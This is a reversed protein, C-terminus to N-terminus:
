SITATFHRMRAFSRRSDARARASTTAAMASCRSGRITAAIRQNATWLRQWPPNAIAPLRTARALRGLRRREHSFDAPLAPDYGGVRKPLRGAITWAINGQRDGVVINQPPLGAKQAIAVAEDATEALELRQLEFDFAGPQQAIWALALPTGDADKGIVPGWETDVVQLKEDPAGHVRIIEDHRVFASEGHATKYHDSRRRRAPRAGLGDHRRLQEHFGM